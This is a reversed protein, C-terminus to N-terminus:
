QITTDANRRGCSWNSLEGIGVGHDTCFKPATNLGPTPKWRERSLLRMTAPVVVTRVSSASVKVAYAIARNRNRNLFAV